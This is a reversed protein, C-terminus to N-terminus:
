KKGNWKISIFEVDESILFGKSLGAIWLPINNDKTQLKEIKIFFDDDIAGEFSINKVNLSSIEAIPLFSKLNKAIQLDEPINNIKLQSIQRKYENINKNTKRIDKNIVELDDSNDIIFSDIFLAIIIALVITIANKIAINQYFKQQIRKREIPLLVENVLDLNKIDADVITADAIDLDFAGITKDGIVLGTLFRAESRNFFLYFGEDRKENTYVVYFGSEKDTDILNKHHLLSWFGYVKIDRYSRRISELEAKLVSFNFGHNTDVVGINNKNKQGYHDLLLIIRKNKLQLVQNVTYNLSM